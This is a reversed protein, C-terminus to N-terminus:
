RVYPQAPRVRAVVHWVFVFGTVRQVLPEFRALCLDRAKLFGFPREPLFQPIGAGLHEVSSAIGGRVPDSEVRVPRHLLKNGVECILRSRTWRVLTVLVYAFGSNSGHRLDVM